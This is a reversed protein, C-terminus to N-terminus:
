DYGVMQLPTICSSQDTWLSSDWTVCGLILNLMVFMLFLSIFLLASTIGTAQLAIRL